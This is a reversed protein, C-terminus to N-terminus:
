RCCAVVGEGSELCDVDVCNEVVYDDQEDDVDDVIDHDVDGVINYDVDDHDVGDDVCNDGVVDLGFSFLVRM